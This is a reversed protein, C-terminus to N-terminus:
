EEVVELTDTGFIDKLMGEHEGHLNIFYITYFYRNGYPTKKNYIEDVIGIKKHSYYVKDGKKLDKVQIRLKGFKNRFTKSDGSDPGVFAAQAINAGITCTAKCDM